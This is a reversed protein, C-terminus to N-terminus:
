HSNTHESHGTGHNSGHEPAETTEPAETPETDPAETDQTATVPKGCSSQAAEVVDDSTSSPDHAIRSVFQGHNEVSEGDCGDTSREVNGAPPVPTITVTPALTTTTAVTTTTSDSVTPASVGDGSGGSSEVATAAAAAGAVGLVVLLVTALTRSGRM